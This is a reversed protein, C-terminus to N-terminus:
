GTAAKCLHPKCKETCAHPALHEEPLSAFAYGGKAYPHEVSVTWWGPKIPPAIRNRMHLIDFDAQHTPGLVSGIRNITWEYRPLKHPLVKVLEGRKM